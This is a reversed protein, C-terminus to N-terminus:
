QEIDSNYKISENTEPLKDLKSVIEPYELIVALDRIVEKLTDQSKLYDKNERIRNMILIADEYKTKYPKERLEMIIDIPTKDNSNDTSFVLTNEDLDYDNKGRKHVDISDILRGPEEYFKNQFYTFNNPFKEFTENHYKMSTFRATGPYSELKDKQSDVIGLYRHIVSIASEKKPVALCSIKVTYNTKEDAKFREFTKEVWDVDRLTGTIIINTGPFEQLLIEQITYYIEYSFENTVEAFNKDKLEGIKDVFLPFYHRFIDMNLEIFHKEPNQHCIRAVLSDKGAGTPAAVFILEANKITDNNENEKGIDNTKKYNNIIQEILKVNNTTNLVSFRGKKTEEEILEKIKNNLDIM